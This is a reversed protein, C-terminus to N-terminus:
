TNLMWAYPTDKLLQVIEEWNQFYSSKPKTHVKLLSTYVSDGIVACDCGLFQIIKCVEVQVNSTLDEYALTHYRFGLQTLLREQTLIDKERKALYRQVVHMKPRITLKDFRELCEPTTCHWEQVRKHARQTEWSLFAALLDLRKLFIVSANSAKLMPFLWKQDEVDQQQIVYGNEGNAEAQKLISETLSPSRVPRSERFVEYGM